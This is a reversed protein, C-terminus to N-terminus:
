SILSNINATSLVTFQEYEESGYKKFSVTSGDYSADEYSLDIAEGDDETLTLQFGAEDRVPDHHCLLCGYDDVFGYAADLLSLVQEKTLTTM